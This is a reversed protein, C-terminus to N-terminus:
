FNITFTTNNNIFWIFFIFQSIVVVKFYLYVIVCIFNKFTYVHVIYILIIKFISCLILIIIIYITLKFSHKFYVGLTFNANILKLIHGLKVIKTVIQMLVNIFVNKFIMAKINVKQLFIIGNYVIFQLNM